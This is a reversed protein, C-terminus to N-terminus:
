RREKAQKLFDEVGRVIAEAATKRYRPSKILREEEPHMIFAAEILVAPMQPPRCVALNDYFLGFNNLELGKLLRKQIAVALQLSQPHFYYTSSGRSIFPNVDDPIANHHVSVLLDAEMFAALKGRSALSAGHRDKRTLFVRAGKDELKEKLVYALELNADKEKLRTPGIAGDDPGHGPDVCILLEKFEFKKPPKKIDIVLNTGDFYPNYGWQQQADLDIQLQYEGKAAQAWKMERIFPDEFDYRIWDTNATAGYISVILRSPQNNQEIKFPLRERLYITVATKKEFNESRVLRVSSTPIPTGAPLLAVSEKPVWVQEADNLRARFYRGNQGTLRLKVGRPLYLQYGLGPGTRAVTIEQTIEAIQPVPHDHVTLRGRAAIVTHTGNGGSLQFHISASDLQIGEPIKYVGTYIGAVDPTLPDDGAGFIFDGLYFDRRPPSEAMPISEALGAVTFSGIYGPTGKFRVELFDGASLVLDEQPFTQTSDIAFTDPSTTELYPPVFVTRITELTDHETMARCVFRFEGSDVPVMALFAGDVNLQVPLDNVFIKADRLPVSGFIFASDYSAVIQGERPYVVDLTDQASVLGPVFHLLTLVALLATKM